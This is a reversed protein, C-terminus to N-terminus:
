KESKPEVKDKKAENSENIIKELELVRAELAEIYLQKEALSVLITTIDTKFM